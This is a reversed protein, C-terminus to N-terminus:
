TEFYRRFWPAAAATALVLFGSVIELMTLETGQAALALGGATISVLIGVGLALAGWPFPLPAPLKQAREERHIAALVNRAFNRSPEIASEQLESWFADVEVEVEVEPKPKPKPEVFPPKKM